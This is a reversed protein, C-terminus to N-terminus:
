TRPGATLRRYGQRLLYGGGLFLVMVAVLAAGQWGIGAINRAVFKRRAGRIYATRPAQSEYDVPVWAKEKLGPVSEADILDVALVGESRGEPIFEVGVLEIPQAADMGRNQPSNFLRDIRALSKVKGLGQRVDEAPAPLPRPFDYFYMGVIAVVACVGAAWGFGPIRAVSWTLLLMAIGATGAALAKEQASYLAWVNAYVRQNALRVTPVLQAQRLMRALPIDPIDEPRLYHLSAAQGVAMADYEAPLMRVVLFGLGSGDPKSYAFTVESSRKWGARALTVDERKAYVRGPITIGRQDIYLSSILFPLIVVLLLVIIAGRLM